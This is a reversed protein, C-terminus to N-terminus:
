RRGSNRLVVDDSLNFRQRGDATTVDFALSFGVTALPPTNLNSSVVVPPSCADAPTACGLDIYSTAGASIPATNLKRLGEVTTSGDDRGYVNYSLAGTYTNWRITIQNPAGAAGGAAITLQAISGSIEGASTVATVAYSYTASKFYGDAVSTGALPTLQVPGAVNRNYTFISNSVLSDAKRVGSGSCAAGAYRWLAYPQSAGVACWTIPASGAVPPKRCYGPLTITISSAAIPTTVASACRIERRLSDLALRANRQAEVRNTQEIQSTGASVFLTTMGALVIALILLVVLMETLTVGHEERLGRWIARGSM